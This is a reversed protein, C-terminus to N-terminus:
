SLNFYLINYLYFFVFFNVFVTATLFYYTWLRQKTWFYIALVFNILSVFLAIGPLIFLWRWRGIVDIGVYINTHLVSRESFDIKRFLCVLWTALILLISVITLMLVLKDKYIVRLARKIEM